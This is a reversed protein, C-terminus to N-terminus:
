EFDVNWKKSEEKVVGMDEDSVEYPVDEDDDNAKMGPVILASHDPRCGMPPLGGEELFSYCTVCLKSLMCDRCVRFAIRADRDRMQAPPLQFRIGAPVQLPECNIETPQGVWSTSTARCTRGDCVMTAFSPLYLHDVWMCRVNNLFFGDFFTYEEGAKIAEIKQDVAADLRPNDGGQSVAAYYDLKDWRTPQYLKVKSWAWSQQETDQDLVTLISALYLWGISFLPKNNRQSLMAFASNAHEQLIEHARTPEDRVVYIRALCLSVRFRLKLAIPKTSFSTAERLRTVQSMIRDAELSTPAQRFTQIYASCLHTIIPLLIELDRTTPKLLFDKVLDEWRAIAERLRAQDDSIFFLRGLWFTLKVRATSRERLSMAEIKGCLEIAEQYVGSLFRLSNGEPDNALMRSLTIHLRNHSTQRVFTELVIEKRCSVNTRFYDFGARWLTDAWMETSLIGPKLKSLEIMKKRIQMDKTSSGWQWTWSLFCDFVKRTTAPDIDSRFLIDLCQDVAVFAADFNGNLSMAEALWALALWETKSHPELLEAREESPGGFACLVAAKQIEFVGPNDIQVQEVVWAEIKRWNPPTFWGITRYRDYQAEIVDQDTLGLAPVTAFWLFFACIENQTWFTKSLLWRRAIMGSVAVKLGSAESMEQLETAWPQSRPQRELSEIVSPDKVISYVAGFYEEREGWTARAQSSAEVPWFLDSVASDFFLRATETGLDTRVDSDLKSTDIKFLLKPLVELALASFSHSPEKRHDTQQRQTTSIASLCAIFRIAVKAMALNSDVVFKSLSSLRRRSGFFEDDIGNEKLLVPSFTANLFHKIADLQKDQPTQAANVVERSASLDGLLYTIMEGTALSICGQADASVLGSYASQVKTGTLVSAQGKSLYQDLVSTHPMPAGLIELVALLHLMTRLKELEVKSVRIALNSLHRKITAERDSDARTLVRNIESTSLLHRIEDIQSQLLYYDGGVAQVLRNRISAMYERVEPSDLSDTFFDCRALKAEAVLVVDSRNPYESDLAIISLSHSLDRTVINLSYADGTLLIRLGQNAQKSSALAESLLRLQEDDLLELGDFIVFSAFDKLSSSFGVTLCSWADFTLNSTLTQNADGDEKLLSFAHDLFQPNQTCLQYAISKLIAGAALDKSAKNFYYFAVALRANSTELVREHIHMIAITALYTKGFSSGAEIALIQPTDAQATTWAKFSDHQLLWSGTGPVCREACARFADNWPEQAIGFLDKLKDVRSPTLATNYESIKDHVLDLKDSMTTVSGHVAVVDKHIKLVSALILATSLKGEEEILEQLKNMHDSVGADDGTAMTNFYQKAAQARHKLHRMWEPSNNTEHTLQIFLAVCGVTHALICNLFQVYKPPLDAGASQAEMFMEFRMSFFGVQEFLQAAKIFIDRYNKTTQILLDIAQALFSVGAGVIPIKEAAPILFNSFRWIVQFVKQFLDKAREFADKFFAKSLFGGSELKKPKDEEPSRIALVEDMKQEIKDRFSIENLNYGTRKSFDDQAKKWLEQLDIDPSKELKERHRTLDTTRQM